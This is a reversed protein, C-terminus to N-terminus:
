GPKERDLIQNIDNITKTLGDAFEDGFYTCQYENAYVYIENFSTFM